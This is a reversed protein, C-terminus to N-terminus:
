AEFYVLEFNGTRSEYGHYGRPNCLINCEGVNYSINDHIHGCCWVKIEPRDLIWDSLESFFNYQLLGTRYHPQVSKWCPHHHTVVINKKEKNISSELWALSRDFEDAEIIPAWDLIKAYDLMGARANHMVLPDRNKMNSWLTTGLIRVGDFDVYEKELFRVNSLRSDEALWRRIISHTEKSSSGYHEHNGAVWFVQKFKKAVDLFFTRVSHSKLTPGPLDAAEYIDGALILIDADQENDLVIGGFHLHLDSALAIKM